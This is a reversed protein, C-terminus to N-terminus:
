QFRRGRLPSDNLESVWCRVMPVAFDGADNLVNNERLWARASPDDPPTDGTALAALIAQGQEQADTWVNAFYVSSSVIARSIAEAVDGPTAEKRHQENLSQVLEFAVAQTLFPQGNTAEIITDLAGEAYTMDFEPIPKTLLLEVDERPLFSVRLRRASIFRDTWAPGLEEFARAGTFMLVLHPHHQIWNRLTDLFGHGWGDDLTEQLREYEDFCLLVRLDKPLELEVNELWDKFVSYPEHELEQKPLPNVKL